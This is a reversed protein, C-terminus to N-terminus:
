IDKRCLSYNLYITNLFEDGVQKTLDNYAMDVDSELLVSQVGAIYGADDYIMVQLICNLPLVYIHISPNREMEYWLPTLPIQMDIDLSSEMVIHLQKGEFFIISFYFYLEYTKQCIKLKFDGYNLCELLNLERVM